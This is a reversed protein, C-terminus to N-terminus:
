VNICIPKSVSSMATYMRSINKFQSLKGVPIRTLAPKVQNDQKWVTQAVQQTHSHSPAIHTSSPSWIGPWKQGTPSLVAYCLFFLSARFVPRMGCTVPRWGSSELVLCNSFLNKMFDKNIISYLKAYLRFEDSDGLIGHCM